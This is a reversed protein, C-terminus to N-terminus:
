EREELDHKEPLESVERWRDGVRRYRGTDYKAAAAHEDRGIQHYLSPNVTM